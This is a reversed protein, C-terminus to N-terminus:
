FRWTVKGYVGRRMESSRTLLDPHFEPHRDDLLNQWTLSLEVNRNPQWGLRTDFRCFAPIRSTFLTPGSAFRRLADVFYLSTDLQLKGPLDLYSRFSAQHPAIHSTEAFLPPADGGSVPHLKVQLWGYTTSLRWFRTANWQAAIEAGYSDAAM